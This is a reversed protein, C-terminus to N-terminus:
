DIRRVMTMQHRMMEIGRDRIGEPGEISRVVYTKPSVAREVIFREPGDVECTARIAAVGSHYVGDAAILTYMRGDDLEYIYMAVRVGVIDGPKFLQDMGLRKRMRRVEARAVRVNEKAQALQGNANRMMMEADELESRLRAREARVDSEFQAANEYRVDTTPTEIADCAHNPQDLEIRVRSPDIGPSGVDAWLRTAILAAEGRDEAFVIAPYTRTGEPPYAVWQKVDM